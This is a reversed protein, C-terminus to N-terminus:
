SSSVTVCLPCSIGSLVLHCVIFLAFVQRFNHYSIYGSDGPDAQALFSRVSELHKDTIERLKSLIVSVNAQTYEKNNKEIYYVAYEDADTIIFKHKLFEM